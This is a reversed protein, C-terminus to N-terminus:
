APEGDAREMLHGGRQAHLQVPGRRTELDPDVSAPGHLGPGDPEDRSARMIGKGEREHVGHAREFSVIVVPEVNLPSRRAARRGGQLAPREVQLVLAARLAALGNPPRQRWRGCLLTTTPTVPWM